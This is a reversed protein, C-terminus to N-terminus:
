TGSGAVLWRPIRAVPEDARSAHIDKWGLGVISLVKFLADATMWTGEIDNGYPGASHFPFSHTERGFPTMIFHKGYRAAVSSGDVLKFAKYGGLGVLLCFVEITHAEASIYEPFIGNEFLARLVAADFHELDIKVYHPTGHRRVIEAVPIAPLMVDKFEKMAEPNPRPFQSLVHNTKHLYFPVKEAGPAATLVANEIILRGVALEHAFRMRMGDCLEPNAEVAIVRDAKKLYYDVDDGNNAGFDYIVTEVAM